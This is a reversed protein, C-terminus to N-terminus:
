EPRESARDEIRDEGQDNWAATDAKAIGNQVCFGASIALTTLFIRFM